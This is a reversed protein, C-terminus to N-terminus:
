SSSNHRPTRHLFHWCCRMTLSYVGETYNDINFTNLRVASVYPAPFSIPAFLVPAKNVTQTFYSSWNTRVFPVHLILYLFDTIIPVGKVPFKLTRTMGAGGVESGIGVAVLAYDWPIELQIFMGFARVVVFLTNNKSDIYQFLFFWSHRRHLTCKYLM